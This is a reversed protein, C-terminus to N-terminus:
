LEPDIWQSSDWLPFDRKVNSKSWQKAMADAIGNYTRSRNNARERGSMYHVEPYRGPVIDTASLNPLNKLWLATKKTCGHGFQYPQVYQTPKCLRSVIGVPNEICIREINCLMFRRFFDIGAEQQEFTHLNGWWRAGSSCLYTCPPHAILIDWQEIGCLSPNKIIDFCDGKYHQGPIETDQLDSSWANCGQLAFSNRVIGSFECAILVNM